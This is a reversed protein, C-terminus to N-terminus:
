AHLQYVLIFEDRFEVTLEKKKLHLKIKQFSLYISKKRNRRILVVLFEPHLMYFLVSFVRFPSSSFASWSLLVPGLFHFSIEKPKRITEYMESKSSFFGAVQLYQCRYFFGWRSGAKELWPVLFPTDHCSLSTQSLLQKVACAVVRCFLIHPGRLVARSVLCQSFISTTCCNKLRQFSLTM